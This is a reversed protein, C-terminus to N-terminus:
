SDAGFTDFLYTQMRVRLRPTIETDDDVGLTDTIVALFGKVAEYDGILPLTNPENADIVECFAAACQAHTYDGQGIVQAEAKQFIEMPHANATSPAEQAVEVSVETPEYLEGKITNFVHPKKSHMDFLHRMTKHTPLNLATEDRLYGRKGGRRKGSQWATGKLGDRMRKDTSNPYMKKWEKLIVDNPIFNEYSAPLDPNANRIEVLRDLAEIFDIYPNSDEVSILTDEVLEHAWALRSGQKGAYQIAGRVLWALIGSYESRLREELREPHPDITADYPVDFRVLLVRRRAGSDANDFTPMRNSQTFPVHTAKFQFASEYLNRAKISGNSAFKKLATSSLEQELGDTFFAFRKGFLSVAESEHAGQKTLLKEDMVTAYNGLVNGVTELFTTKGTSGPGVLQFLVSEVPNGCIAYGLAEQLAYRKAQDPLATILFQEWHPCRADIGKWPTDTSFMLGKDAPSMGELLEGTKLDIVAKGGSVGLWYEGGTMVRIGNMDPTALIAAVDSTFGKRRSHSLASQVAKLRAKLRDTDADGSMSERLHTRELDLWKGAQVMLSGTTLPEWVGNREILSSGQDNVALVDRHFQVFGQAFSWDDLTDFSDLVTSQGTDASAETLDAKDVRLLQKAAEDPGYVRRFRDYDNIQQGDDGEAPKPVRVLAPVGWSRVRAAFEETMGMGQEDNDAIFVFPRRYGFLAVLEVVAEAHSAGGVMAVGYEDPADLFVGIADTCGETIVVPSDASGARLVGVKADTGHHFM